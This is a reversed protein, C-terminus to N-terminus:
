EQGVLELVIQQHTMTTFYSSGVLLGTRRDYKSDIEGAANSQATVVSNADVRAVVIRMKSIPDEDLVQGQQLRALAAPGAWLGNFQARGFDMEGRAPPVALGQFQQAIETGTQVWSNGRGAATVDLTITNPVGPLSGGRVISQGRYHLARFNSVWAPAVEQAWPINLDRAAIFDGHTLMLDGPGANVGTHAAGRAMSAFHICLGTRADFVNVNYAGHSVRQIRVANVVRDGCHWNIRDVSVGTAPDSRLMVLRAPDMWADGCGSVSGVACTNGSLPMPANNSLVTADAFAQTSIVVHDGDIRAITTEAFGSASTGSRDSKDFHRGTAMDVWNGTEDESYESDTGPAVAAYWTSTLQLGEHLWPMGPVPGDARAPSAGASGIAAVLAAALIKITRKM